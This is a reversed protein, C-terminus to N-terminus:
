SITLANSQPDLCLQLAEALRRGVHSTKRFVLRIKRTPSPTVPLCRIGTPKNPHEIAMQPLFTIGGHSRVLALLTAISSAASQQNGDVRHATCFGVVQEKLCHTDKLLLLQDTGLDPVEVKNQRALRHRTPVALFFPEEFLELEELLSDNM